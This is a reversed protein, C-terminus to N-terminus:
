GTQQLYGLVQYKLHLRGIKLGHASNGTALLSLRRFVLPATWDMRRPYLANGLTSGNWNANNWNFQNWNTPTGSAAISVQDLPVGDQNLALVSTTQGAVLAMHLTSEIMCVEAMQDTDPLYSTQWAYTLPNGNEVFTSTFSQFPDSQFIIAGANQITILFSNQYPIGLSMKTSHPGSWLNRVDDYWWEQQQEVPKVSPIGGSFGNSFGNSFANGAVVATTASAAGNQVQVRYVGFNYAAAARSPVLISIFPVTIGDGDKGIPDGVKATFDILRVGDPAMFLLGKETSCVTNPAFTGTAVNLTNKSLTGFAADGIIQYINSVGKFIMLAQIIGGLQNSLALGASCTLPTNDDFTLIQNANTIQTPLLVDSFYAAPQQNPPNVLFWCRGNFNSVWQPPFVLATPSTNTATWTLAFANLVDIVGFFAGATGTFGPHAVIIKSGILEMHPPNWNGFTQPSIPSNAAVAGTIPIFMQTQVDYCFPVDHGGAVSVMGYVRTGVNIWCSIFSASPFGHEALDTVKVAAPRCQWLNRTTPDPILNALSAMTGSGNSSADLTDAATRPAWVLPTGPLPM